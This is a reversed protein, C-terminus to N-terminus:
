MSKLLKQLMEYANRPSPRTPSSKRSPTGFTTPSEKLDAQTSDSAISVDTTSTSSPSMSGSQSTESSDWTDKKFNVQFFEVRPAPAFEKKWPKWGSYPPYLCPNYEAEFM